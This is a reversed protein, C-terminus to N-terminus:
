WEFWWDSERRCAVVLKAYDISSLDLEGNEHVCGPLDRGNCCRASGRFLVVMFLHSTVLMLVYTTAYVVTRAKNVVVVM